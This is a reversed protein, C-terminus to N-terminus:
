LIRIFRSILAPLLTDPFLPENCANNNNFADPVFLWSKSAVVAQGFVDRHGRGEVFIFISYPLYSNACQTVM